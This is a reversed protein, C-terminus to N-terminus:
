LHQLSDFLPLKGSSILSRKSFAGLPSPPRCHFVSRMLLSNVLVGAPFNTMAVLEGVHCFQYLVCSLFIRYVTQTLLFRVFDKMLVTVPLCVQHSQVMSPTISGLCFRECTLPTISGRYWTHNLCWLSASSTCLFIAWINLDFQKMSFIIDSLFLFSRKETDELDNGLGVVQHMTYFIHVSAGGLQCPAIGILIVHADSSSNCLVAGSAGRHVLTAAFSQLM